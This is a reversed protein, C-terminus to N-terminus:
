PRHTNAAAQPIPGLSDFAIPYRKPECALIGSGRPIGLGKPHEHHRVRQAWYVENRVENWHQAIDVINQKQRAQYPQGDLQQRCVGESFATALGILPHCGLPGLRGALNAGGEDHQKPQQLAPGSPVPPRDPPVVSASSWRQQGAIRCCNRSRAPRPRLCGRAWLCARLTKGDGPKLM